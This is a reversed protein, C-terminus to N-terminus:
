RLKNAAQSLLDREQKFLKSELTNGKLYFTVLMLAGGKVRQILESVESGKPALVAITNSEITVIKGGPMAANELAHLRSYYVLNLQPIGNADVWTASQIDDRMKKDIKCPKLKKGVLAEAESDSILTCVLGDKISSTQEKKDGKNGCANTILLFIAVFLYKVRKM